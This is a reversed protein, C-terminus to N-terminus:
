ALFLQPIIINIQFFQVAFYCRHFGFAAIESKDQFFGTKFEQRNRCAIYKGFSCFFNSVGFDYVNPEPLRM